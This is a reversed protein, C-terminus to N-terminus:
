APFLTRTHNFTIKPCMHLNVVQKHQGSNWSHDTTLKSLNWQIKNLNHLVHMAIQIGKLFFIQKIIDAVALFHQLKRVYFLMWMNSTNTQFIEYYNLVILPIILFWFGTDHIKILAM